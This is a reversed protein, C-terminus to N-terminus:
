RSYASLEDHFTTLADALKLVPLGWQDYGESINEIYSHSPYGTHPPMMEYFFISEGDQIWQRKSYYYPYGEFMDLSEECYETIDWLAGHVVAGSKPMITAHSHFVLEWDRLAYSKVPVALPCRSEMSIKNINAGYAFYLRRDKLNM